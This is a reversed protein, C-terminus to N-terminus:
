ANQKVQLGHAEFYQIVKATPWVPHSNRSITFTVRKPFPDLNPELWEKYTGKRRSGSSRLIESQELRETQTRSYPWGLRKLGHWDIMISELLM